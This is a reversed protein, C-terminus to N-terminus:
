DVLGDSVEEITWVLSETDLVLRFALTDCSVSFVHFLNRGDRYTHHLGITKVLYERGEWLIVKPTTVRTTHNFITKVSAPISVKQIM